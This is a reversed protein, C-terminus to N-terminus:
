NEDQEREEKRHLFEPRYMELIRDLHHGNTNSYVPDARVYRPNHRDNIWHVCSSHSSRDQHHHGISTTTPSTTTTTTATTTTTTATTPYFDHQHWGRTTLLFERTFEPSITLCEGLIVDIYSQYIPADKSASEAKKPVYVWIPAAKDVTHQPSATPSAPTTTTTAAAHSPQQLEHVHNPNVLVRDYGCERIDFQELETDSVPILVGVCNKGKEVRIGLLTAGGTRISWLRELHDVRVPIAQRGKLTPATITRSKPCILSGYGFILNSFSM